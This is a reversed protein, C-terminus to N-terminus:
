VSDLSKGTVEPKLPGTAEPTTYGNRILSFGSPETAYAVGNAAVGDAIATSLPPLMKM